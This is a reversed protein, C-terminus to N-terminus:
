GKTVCYRKTISYWLKASCKLKAFDRTFLHRCYYPPGRLSTVCVCLFNRVENGLCLWAWSYFFKFKIVSGLCKESLTIM